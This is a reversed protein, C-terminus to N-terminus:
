ELSAKGLMTLISIFSCEIRCSIISHAKKRGSSPIILHTKKYGGGVIDTKSGAM